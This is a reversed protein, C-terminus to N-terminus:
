SNSNSSTKTKKSTEIKGQAREGQELFDVFRELQELTDDSLKAAKRAIQMLREDEESDGTPLPVGYVMNLLVYPDENTFKALQLVSPVDPTYKGRVWGGVAGHSVGIIAGLEEYTLDRSKLLAALWDKFNETVNDINSCFLQSKDLSLM